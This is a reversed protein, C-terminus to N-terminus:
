RGKGRKVSYVVQGSSSELYVTDFEGDGKMKAKKAIYSPPQTSLWRVMHSGEAKSGVFPEQGVWQGRLAYNITFPPTSMEDKVLKRLSDKARRDYVRDMVADLARHLADKSIPVAIHIAASRGQGCLYCSDDKTKGHFQHPRKREALREEFAGDKAMKPRRDFTRKKPQYTTLDYSEPSVRETTASAIKWLLALLAGWTLTSTLSDKARKM